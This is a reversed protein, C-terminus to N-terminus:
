MWKFWLNISKEKKALWAARILAETSHTYAGFIRVKASTNMENTVEWQVSKLSLKVKEDNLLKIEGSQMMAKLNNYYDEKQMRQSKRGERDLSIARNNMPIIKRKVSDVLQLNDFVGVGLSGSGADIGIKVLKFQKEMEVIRKQTETTYTKETIINEVQYVKDRVKAVVSFVSEDFMRGIDVGMFRVGARLPDRELICAKEILEDEFFQKLDDLFLGLYEQGYQLATMDKREEELFKIAADRQKETWTECIERTKIVEESSIHIVKYKNNKNQFAEWFYGQKGYPTSCMWVEGATTLLVPRAATWVLDPMRSAEDIVLVDGTFGRVADGTNGVPRAIVSSGNKLIIRNQTPKNKAKRDILSYNLKELYDLIMVIILKAQDETLSVVIIRCKPQSLLRESVKRAMIYTKGVQRGTCLLLHGKHNLAEQQWSDLKILKRSNGEGEVISKQAGEQQADQVDALGRDSYTRAM